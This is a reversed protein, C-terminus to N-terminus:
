GNKRKRAYRFSALGVLGVGILLVTSPEPVPQDPFGDPLEFIHGQNEEDIFLAFAAYKEPATGTYNSLAELYTNAQAVVDSSGNIMFYDSGSGAGANDPSSDYIVEWIAAQLAAAETGTDANDIFLNMLFAAKKLEDPSSDDIYTLDDSWFPTGDVYTGLDICFARVDNFVETDVTLNWRMIGAQVTYPMNSKVKSGNDYAIININSSPSVNVYDFQVMIAQANAGVLLTMLAVASILIGTWVNKRMKCGGRLATTTKGLLSAFAMGFLFITYYQNTLPYRTTLHVTNYGIGVGSIERMSPIIIRVICVYHM